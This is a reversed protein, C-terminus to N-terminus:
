NMSQGKRTMRVFIFEPQNVANEAEQAEQLGCTEGKALAAGTTTEKLKNRAAAVKKAAKDLADMAVHYIQISKAGEEVYKIAEQRLTNFHATLSEQCGNATQPEEETCRTKAERTWRKLVYRSPLTLINRARFVALIHRCIIGSYEFMRCNCNAKVELSDFGVTHGKCVEGLIAVRYTTVTGSDSIRTAPNAFSEVLEEQFKVFVARTYLSAAQKEMSSPTKLISMSNTTEYEAKMEKERWSDIAKEYQKILLLMTTSANVFGDFFLNLIGSGDNASLEGYFTDRIYAPIWQQRASYISQLWDNDLLYYRRVISDWSAEFESITETENICRRFESELSPHSQYVHALKEKTERLILWRCFRIHTGSLVQAAGVQILPDPEITISVPPRASMAHIWTHFLWAFSSESENLILACGFLVPQGHHNFGTFAAFPVRYMNSRYTTDFVVTDGFYAYNMMSSPDAWFVNASGLEGGGEIEYFFAPNTLQKRRLYDLVHQNVSGPTRQRDMSM